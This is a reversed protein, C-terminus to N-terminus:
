KGTWVDLELVSGNFDLGNLQTMAETAEEATAFAVGGTTGQKGIEAWKPNSGMNKFHDQLDKFTTGAPMNGVWVKCETPFDRLGKTSKGKGAGGFGGAAGGKGGAGFGGGGGGGKGGGGMGSMMAKMGKVANFDGGKMAKMMMGKMMMPDMGGWSDGGWSDGGGGWGGGGGGGAPGDAETRKECMKYHRKGGEAWDAGEVM